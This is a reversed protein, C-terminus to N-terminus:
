TLDKSDENDLADPDIRQEWPERMDFTNKYSQTKSWVQQSAATPYLLDGSDTIMPHMGIRINAVRKEISKRLELSDKQNRTNEELYMLYAVRVTLDRVTHNNSSFPLVFMAGLLENVRLSAGDLYVDEIKTQTIGNISYVATFNAYTAYAIAM